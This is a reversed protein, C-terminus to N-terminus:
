SGDEEFDPALIGYGGWDTHIDLKNKRVYEDSIKLAYGRPDGNLFIPVKAARYELIEDLASEIADEMRTIYSSSLPRNCQDEALKHARRELERVARYLAWPTFEKAAPFIALLREGQRTQLENVRKEAKTMAM